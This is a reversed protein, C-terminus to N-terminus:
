KSVRVITNTASPLKGHVKEFMEILVAKFCSSMLLTGGVLIQPCLGM